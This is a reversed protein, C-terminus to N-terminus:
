SQSSHSPRFRIGLNAHRGDWFGQAMKRLCALKNSGFLMVGAAHRVLHRCAFRKTKTKPYLWWAAYVLNRTVYYERWPAYNPWLASFGPLRVHHATGVEHAMTAASIVALKYGRSRLRLCYEFDVFDIFFDARPLGVEKVAAGSILSGSAFALDAFWVPQHLLEASPKLWGDHWLLPPYCIGSRQHVPLPAALGIEGDGSPISDLGALLQALNDPGPISDDDFTWIWDYQRQLATYALGAAWAGAQGLNENLRIATVEPAHQALWDSTGDTSGNDVIVIEQIPRSQRRLADLHRALLHEANHAVTVSAISANAVHGATM